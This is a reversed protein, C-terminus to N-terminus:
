TSKTNPVVNHNGDGAGVHVSNGTRERVDGDHKRLTGSSPAAMVGVSEGGGGRCMCACICVKM